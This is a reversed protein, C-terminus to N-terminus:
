GSAEEGALPSSIEFSFHQPSLARLFDSANFAEGATLVGRAKVRGDVIREMAEVVLPATFAYIDRGRAVARREVDGSRVVVEVIFTQPSRGSEDVSLPPTEAASVDKVAAVTMYSRIERARIHRSITVTDAMTFEGVVVQKGLPAPFIWEGVPAD